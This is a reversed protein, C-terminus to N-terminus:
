HPTHILMAVPDVGSVWIVWQGMAWLTIQTLRLNQGM